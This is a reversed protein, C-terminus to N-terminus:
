NGYPKIIEENRVQGIMEHCAFKGHLIMKDETQQLQINEQLISGAVMSEQLYDRAASILYTEAEEPSLSQVSSTYSVVSETVLAVPLQFGGPLTMYKVSYMKDCSADSIGSGKYFNIRKKGIILAYKKSEAQKEGFSTYAVPSIADIERNTKAYIEGESRTARISLGCDTYGSILVQGAKVVQGPKCLLNGKAATCSTIMGDRSAIISSVGCVDEREPEESREKVTITAVCGSTNVGVWKLQPVSELLANKVKESRVDRRSSGFGIGAAQCKELIQNASVSQNGEVRFFLVRSPLYCSLAFFFILGALLIPRRLIAKGTWYLGGRKCIKCEYGRNKALASLKRYDKRQIKLVLGFGDAGERIRHLTIGAATLQMMALAPDACLLQVEVMGALSKWLDM